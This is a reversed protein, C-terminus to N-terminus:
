HINLSYIQLINEGVGVVKKSSGVGVVSFLSRKLHKFPDQEPGIIGHAGQASRSGMELDEM